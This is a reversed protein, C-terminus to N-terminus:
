NEVFSLEKISNFKREVAQLLRKLGEDSVENQNFKISELQTKPNKGIM